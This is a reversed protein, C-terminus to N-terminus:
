YGGYPLAKKSKDIKCVKFSGDKRYKPACHYAENCADESMPKCKEPKCKKFSGSNDNKVRCYSTNDCASSDNIEGCAVPESAPDETAEPATTEPKAVCVVQYVDFQDCNDLDSSTGAPTFGDEDADAECIMGEMLMDDIVMPCSEIGGCDGM